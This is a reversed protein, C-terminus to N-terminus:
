FLGEWIELLLIKRYLAAPDIYVAFCYITEETSKINIWLCDIYASSLDQIQKPVNLDVELTNKVYM